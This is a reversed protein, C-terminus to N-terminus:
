HFKHPRIVRVLFHIRLQTAKLYIDGGPFQNGKIIAYRCRDKLLDPSHIQTL